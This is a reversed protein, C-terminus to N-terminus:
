LQISTSNIDRLTFQANWSQWTIWSSLSRLYNLTVRVVILSTENVSYAGTQEAILVIFADCNDSYVSMVCCVLVDASSLRIIEDFFPNVM